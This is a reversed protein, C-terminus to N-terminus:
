NNEEEDNNLLENCVEVCEDCIWVGPGAVIKKVKDQPKGCFSCKIKRNINLNIIKSNTPLILESFSTELTWGKPVNTINFVAVKNENLNYDIGEQLKKPSLWFKDRPPIITYIPVTVKYM